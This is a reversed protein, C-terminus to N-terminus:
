PSILIILHIHLPRRLELHGERCNPPWFRFGTTQSVERGAFRCTQLVVRLTNRSTCGVGSDGQALSERYLQRM